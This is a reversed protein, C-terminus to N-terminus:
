YCCVFLFRDVISVPFRLDEHGSSINQTSDLIIPHYRCARHLTMHRDQGGKEWIGWSLNKKKKRKKKKISLSEAALQLRVAGAISSVPGEITVVVSCILGVAADIQERQDDIVLSFFLIVFLYTPLSSISSGASFFLLVFIDATRSSASCCSIESSATCAM